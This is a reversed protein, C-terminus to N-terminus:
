DIKAKPAEQELFLTNKAMMMLLGVIIFHKAHAIVRDKSQNLKKTMMKKLHLAMMLITTVFVQQGLQQQLSLMAVM